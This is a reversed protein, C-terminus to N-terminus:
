TSGKASFGLSAPCRVFINMHIDELFFFKDIDNAMIIRDYVRKIIANTKPCWDRSDYISFAQIRQATNYKLIEQTISGLSLRSVPPHPLTNYKSIGPPNLTQAGSVVAYFLLGLIGQHFM